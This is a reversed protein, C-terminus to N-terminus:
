GSRAWVIMAAASDCGVSQPQHRPPLRGCLHNLRQGQGAAVYFSVASQSRL